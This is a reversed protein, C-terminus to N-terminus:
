SGWFSRWSPSGEADGTTTGANQSLRTPLGGNSAGSRSSKTRESTGMGLREYLRWAQTPNISDTKLTIRRVGRRAFQEFTQLMLAKGLGRGRWEPHVVLDKVYGEKWNLAAGVIRDGAIALFWVEAEYSPDGLMFTQWDEFSLPHYYPEEAYAEDLLEKVARADEARFTRVAVGEPWAATPPEPELDTGMLWAEWAKEYGSARCFPAAAPELTVAVLRLVESEAEAEIRRLLQTGIGRRRESKRVLVNIGDGRRGASGAFGAPTAASYSADAIALLNSFMGRTIEPEGFLERQHEALLAYAEDADELRFPRIELGTV